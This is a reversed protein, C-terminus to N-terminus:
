LLWLKAADLVSDQLRDKLSDRLHDLGVNIMDTGLKQVSESTTIAVSHDVIYRHISADYIRGYAQGHIADRVDLLDGGLDATTRGIDLGQGLYPTHDLAFDRVKPNLWSPTGMYAMDGRWEDGYSRPDLRDVYDPPRNAAAWAAEDWGSQWKQLMPADALKQAIQQQQFQLWGKPMPGPSAGEVVPVDTGTEPAPADVATPPQPAPASPKYTSAALAFLAVAAVVVVIAGVPPAQSQDAQSGATPNPCPGLPQGAAQQAQHYAPCDDAHVPTAFLILGAVALPSAALGLLRRM